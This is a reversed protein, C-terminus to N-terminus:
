RGRRRPSPTRRGARLLSSRSTGSPARGCGEVSGRGASHGFRIAVSGTPAGASPRGGAVETAHWARPEQRRPPLALDEPSPGWPPIGGPRPGLRQDARACPDDSRQISEPVCPDGALEPMEFTRPATGLEGGVGGLAAQAGARVDASARRVRRFRSPTARRRGATRNRCSSPRPVRREAWLAQGPSLGRCAAM